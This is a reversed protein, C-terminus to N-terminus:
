AMKTSGKGISHLLVTAACYLAFEKTHYKVGGKDPM